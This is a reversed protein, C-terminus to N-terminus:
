APVKQSSIPPHSRTEPMKRGPHVVHGTDKIMQHGRMMKLSGNLVVVDLGQSQLGACQTFVDGRRSNSFYGVDYVAGYQNIVVVMNHPGCSECAHVLDDAMPEVQEGQGVMPVMEYPMHEHRDMRVIPEVNDLFPDPDGVVAIYFDGKHKLGRVSEM